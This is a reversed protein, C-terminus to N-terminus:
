RKVRFRGAEKTMMKDNPNFPKLHEAMSTDTKLNKSIIKYAMERISLTLKKSQEKGYELKLVELFTREANRSTANDYIESLKEEIIEENETDNRLNVFYNNLCNFADINKEWGELLLEQGKMPKQMKNRYLLAAAIYRRSNKHQEIVKEFYFNAEKKRDISNYLDGVKEDKNLEKYIEIAEKIMNGKEYCEAAKNKNNIQLYILAADQYFKGRELLSAATYREKLLKLYIFAAKKYDGKEILDTATQRYKDRLRQFTNDALPATGGGRNNSTGFLGFDNWRKNLEIEGATTGRSTGETDTPIAYKLAEEPNTEFLEMLKDIKSQNRRELEEYDQYLNNIFEQDTEKSFFGKLKGLTHLVNKDDLIPNGDKDKKIDKRDGFAKKLLNLKEKEWFSLPKDNLFDDDKEDKEKFISEELHKLYDEASIPKVQFARIEKPISVSKAPKRPKFSNQFDTKPMGIRLLDKLTVYDSLEILSSKTEFNPYFLYQNSTCLEELESQNLLPFITTHEPLFLTGEICQFLQNARLYQKDIGNNSNNFVILCGFFTDDSTNKLPYIKEVSIQMADMEFIWKQIDNGKILIGQLPFNNKETRKFQLQM